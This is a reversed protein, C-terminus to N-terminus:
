MSYNIANKILQMMTLLSGQKLDDPLALLILSHMLIILLTNFVLFPNYSLRHKTCEDLSHVFGLRSWVQM